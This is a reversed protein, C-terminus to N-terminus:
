KVKDNQIVLRSIMGPDFIENSTERVDEATIAAIKAEIEQFEEVRNYIMVSKGASITQNLNSEMSLAMQGIYQQKAKHLQNTGLKQERLNKLEFMVRDSAKELSEKDTAFYILMQGTDTFASYNSEVSYAYGLKERISYSLRSSMAPGGLLNNILAISFKNPHYYSYAPAGIVCHSQSTKGRLVEWQPRYDLLPNEYSKSGFTQPEAIGPSFYKELLHSLKKMSIDGYSTVILNAPQYYRGYFARLNELSQKKIGKPTGLILKGLQNGPFLIAEFKEHITEYPQEQYSNIEDIVVEKEKEVEKPPFVSHFLIDSLLEITREFYQQLFSVYICTEEKSTYANIDAGVDELRTLIHYAKRHTTGKFLCHEILHALGHEHPLEDRSGSKVIVALHAVESSAQKHVIQLGNPLCRQQYEM